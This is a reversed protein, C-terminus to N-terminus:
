KPVPIKGKAQGIATGPFHEVRRFRDDDFDILMGTTKPMPLSWMWTEFTWAMTSLWSATLRAGLLFRTGDVLLDGLINEGVQVIANGQLEADVAHGIGRPIRMASDSKFTLCAYLASM